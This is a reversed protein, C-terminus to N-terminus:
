DGATAPRRRPGARLGLRYRAAREQQALVVLSDGNAIGALDATALGRPACRALVAGAILAQTIPELVIGRGLEELAVMAEVRGMGLGGDSEAVDLGACGWRQSNATFRARFDVPNSSRAGASLDM